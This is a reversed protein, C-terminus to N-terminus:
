RRRRPVAPARRGPPAALRLGAHGVRDVRDRARDPWASPLVTATVSIAPSRRDRRGAIGPVIANVCTASIPATADGRPRPRRRRRAARRGARRSRVGARDPEVSTSSAVARAPSHDGTDPMRSFRRGALGAHFPITRPVPSIVEWDGSGPPGWPGLSRSACGCRPCRLDGAVAGGAVGRGLGVLDAAGAGVVGRGAGVRLRRGAARELARQLLEALVVEGVPRGREGVVADEASNGARIASSDIMPRSISGFVSVSASVATTGASAASVREVRHDLLEGPLVLGGPKPRTRPRATAM